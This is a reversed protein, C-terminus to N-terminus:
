PMGGFHSLMKESNYRPRRRRRSDTLLGRTARQAIVQTRRTGENYSEREDHVPTNKGVTGSGTARCRKQHLRPFVGRVLWFPLFVHRVGGVVPDALVGGAANDRDGGHEAPGQARGADAERSGGVSQIRDGGSDLSRGRGRGRGQAGRCCRGRRCRGGGSDRSGGRGRGQAGRCCRGGRGGRCRGMLRWGGRGVLGRALGAGAAGTLIVLATAIVAPGRLSPRVSRMLM